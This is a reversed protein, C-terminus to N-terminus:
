IVKQYLTSYASPFQTIDPISFVKIEAMDGFSVFILASM